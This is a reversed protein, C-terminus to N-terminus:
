VVVTQGRRCRVRRARAASTPPLTCDNTLELGTNVAAWRIMRNHSHRRVTWGRSVIVPGVVPHTAWAAVDNLPSMSGVPM